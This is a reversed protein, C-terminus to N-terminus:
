SVRVEVDALLRRFEHRAAAVDLAVPACRLALASAARRSAAGQLPPVADAVERREPLSGNCHLVIDCGAAIAARSRAGVSGSLAGMSVDDSMLLGDFGIFGRIVERIMTASTTVPAVADIAAFVVHATMGMPLDALPRFAAFDSSELTQRDARVVPLATHSDATARGHGPLHKLVALVGGLRLGDAVARALAAVKEPTEGYARDGIVPDAAGAPVDALPLCDVDIGLEHLDGAILQAGLRAAAIGQAPDRDFLRGYARGPPYVPWHPPGLRQVRGGEQDVLVPANRGLADRASKILGRVQDPTDVNRKFLIVGWPQTDRLFTREETTLSRGSLDTIFARPAM